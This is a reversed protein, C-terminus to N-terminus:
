IPAREEAFSLVSRRPRDLADSDAVATPRGRASWHNQQVTENPISIATITSCTALGTQTLLAGLLDATVARM